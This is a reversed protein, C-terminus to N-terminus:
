RRCGDGGVRLRHDVEEAGERGHVRRRRRPDGMEVRFESPTEVVGAAADGAMRRLGVVRWRLAARRGAIEAVARRRKGREGFFVVDAGKGGEHPIGEGRAGVAAHRPDFHLLLIRAIDGGVQEPDRAAIAFRHWPQRGKRGIGRQRFTAALNDGRCTAGRAVGQRRNWRSLGDNEPARGSAADIFGRRGTQGAVRETRGLPACQARIKCVASRGRCGRLGDM